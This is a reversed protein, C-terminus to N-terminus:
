KMKDYPATLPPLNAHSRCLVEKKCYTWDKAGAYPALCPMLM